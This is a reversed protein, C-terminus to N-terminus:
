GQQGERRWLELQEHITDDPGDLVGHTIDSLGTEVTLSGESLGFDCFSVGNTTHRSTM